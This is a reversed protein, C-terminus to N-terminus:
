NGGFIKNMDYPPDPVFFEPWDSPVQICGNAILAELARHIIVRTKAAPTGQFGIAVNDAAFCGNQVLWSMEEESPMQPEGVLEAHFYIAEPNKSALEAAHEESRISSIGGFKSLVWYM